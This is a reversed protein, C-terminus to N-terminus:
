DGYSFYEQEEKLAEKYCNDCSCGAPNTHHAEKIPIWKGCFSCQIYGRKFQSVAQLIYKEANEVDKHDLYRYETYGEKYWMMLEKDTILVELKQQFGLEITKNEM